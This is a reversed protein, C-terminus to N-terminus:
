LSNTTPLRDEADKFKQFQFLADVKACGGKGFRSKAVNLYQRRQLGQRVVSSSGSTDKEILNSIGIFNQPLNTGIMVIHDYEVDGQRVTVAKIHQKLNM